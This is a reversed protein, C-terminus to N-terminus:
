SKRMLFQVAFVLLPVLASAWGIFRRERRELQEAKEELRALRESLGGPGNM